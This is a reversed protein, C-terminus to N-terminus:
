FTFRAGISYVDETFNTVGNAAIDFNDHASSGDDTGADFRAEAWVNFQPNLQWNVYLPVTAADVDVNTNDIDLNQYEYGTYVGVGNKFAYGAVIEFGSVEYDHNFGGVSNRVDFSRVQYAAAVYPGSKVRGWSLSIAYQDYGDYSGYSSVNNNDDGKEAFDGGSYGVRIAIPGFLVDPSTYGLAAAWSYDVDLQEVTGSSFYAGDIHENDKGFAYSVIADVGFGSWQYQVLGERRDDNGMLGTCGWDDFIDTPTIAYKLADEFKGAKFQGYPGFDFGVWMYRADFGDDEDHSNNGNAVEWEAKAFASVSSNIQTRLDLGLRGSADISNQENSTSSAHNSYWVSQIRGYIGLSTGDRDYVTTASAASTLTAAMSLSVALAVLSKKM